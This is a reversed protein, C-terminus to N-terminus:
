MNMSGTVKCTLAYSNNNQVTGSIQLSGSAHSYSGTGGKVSLTGKFTAVTGIYHVSASGSGSFSGGHPSCTFAITASKSTLNMNLAIPCSFTGSGSGSEVLKTRHHQVLHAHVSESVSVHRAMTATSDAGAVAPCAVALVAAAVPMALFKVFLSMRM